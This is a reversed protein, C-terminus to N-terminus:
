RSEASMNKLDMLLSTPEEKQTTTTQPSFTLEEKKTTMTRSPFTKLFATKIVTIATTEQQLFKNVQQMCTAIDNTTEIIQLFNVNQLAGKSRVSDFIICMEVM